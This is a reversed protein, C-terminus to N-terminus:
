DFTISLPGAQAPWVGDRVAKAANFILYGRRGYHPLPRLLSHLAKNDNAEIVLLSQATGTDNTRRAAWVRATGQGVLMKPSNPLNAGHLFQQVSSTEGIILLPGQHSSASKANMFQPQVDLLRTALQKSTQEMEKNGGSFVVVTQANLTVDRLIPPAETADLRRFIDFDPDVSVSVPRASLPLDIRSAKGDIAAQFLKEGNESVLKIPVDLTYPLEPQSLTFSVKDNTQFVDSLVLKPAGGRDIWQEFFAKLDKSSTKEFINRIDNWGATRFKYHKWFSQISAKFVPKGVKRELMHFIYAVKNYGIIQAADHRRSIFARVAQDRRPPLAAYDRLWQTRMKKGNGEDRQKSFAYDAMFTTLGEAWNGQEYDIEVGNGWWNHLVEHGLSTFRIFPLQLVREGIYTMGPFGLGLPLTGSVINFSTFPYDGILDTYLDLYGITSELYGQSLDALEPPFYTRLLIDKHRREAVAFPGAVLVIAETAIESKFIGQYKRASISEEILQGPVVGKQAEPLILTLQYSAGIGPVIPHWASGAALYSGKPSAIMPPTTMAQPNEPLRSLSGKYQLSVQHTGGAGLNLRVTDGHRSQIATQGNIKLGTIILNSALHFNVEGQGEIRMHDSVDLTRKVPDLQVTMKHDISTIDALAKTAQPWLALSVALVTLVNIIRSKM